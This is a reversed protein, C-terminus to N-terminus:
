FLKDQDASLATDLTEQMAGIRRRVDAGDVSNPAASKAPKAALFEHALNLATMIAIRENGTVKGSDKLEKIRRNLFEVSALLQKEEGEPCSVRFDRGLVQITLGKDGPKASAGSV